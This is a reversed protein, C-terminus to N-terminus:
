DCNEYYASGSGLARVSSYPHFGTHKSCSSKARLYGVATMFLAKRFIHKLITSEWFNLGVNSIDAEKNRVM